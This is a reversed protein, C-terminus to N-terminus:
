ETAGGGLEGKALVAVTRDQALNLAATLGAAGSGIVLVDATPSM